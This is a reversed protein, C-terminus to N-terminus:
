AATGEVEIGGAPRAARRVTIPRYVLASPAVSGPSAPTVEFQASLLALLEGAASRAASLLTAALARDYDEISENWACERLREADDEQDTWRLEVTVGFQGGNRVRTRWALETRTSILEQVERFLAPADILRAVSQADLHGAVAQTIIGLDLGEDHAKVILAELSRHAEYVGFKASRLRRTLAELRLAERAEAIDDPAAQRIASPGVSTEDCVQACARVQVDPQDTHSQLVSPLNKRLVRQALDDVGDCMGEDALYVGLPDAEEEFQEYHQWETAGPSKSELWCEYLTM